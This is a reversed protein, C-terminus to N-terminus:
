EQRAPDVATTLVETVWANVSMNARAASAAVRAHIGPDMRVLFKGAYPREPEKGREKCWAIYEDVSARFEREIQEVSDAEFTIVASINEVRGHLLGVSEDFQVRGVYGKYEM